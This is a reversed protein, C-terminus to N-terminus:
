EETLDINSALGRSITAQQEQVLVQQEQSDRAEAESAAALRQQLKEQLRALM